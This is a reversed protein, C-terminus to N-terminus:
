KGGWGEMDEDYGGQQLFFDKRVSFLGTNHTYILFYLLSLFLSLSFLSLSFSLSLSLQVFIQLYKLGM